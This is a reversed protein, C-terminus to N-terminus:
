TRRAACPPRATPCCADPPGSTCNKSTAAFIAFRRRWSLPPIIATSAAQTPCCGCRAPGIGQPQRGVGADPRSFATRYADIGLIAVSWPRYLEVIEQLRCSGTDLEARTIERSSVTTRSVLNTIGCGVDLLRQQQHPKLLTETFGSEYLARWFRNGPRAFHYGTYGSYLGPNIGCFLARLGPAIVDLITVGAAAALDAKAPKKRETLTRGM